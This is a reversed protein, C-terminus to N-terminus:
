IDKESELMRRIAEAVIQQDDVLLVKIRYGALKNSAPKGDASTRSEAATSESM